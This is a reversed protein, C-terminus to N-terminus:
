KPSSHKFCKLLPLDFQSTGTANMKYICVKKDSTDGIENFSEFFRWVSEEPLMQFKQDEDKYNVVSRCLMQLNPCNLKYEIPYDNHMYSSIHLSKITPSTFYFQGIENTLCLKVHQLKTMKSFDLCINRILTESNMEYIEKYVSETSEDNESDDDDTFKNYENDYDAGDHNDYTDLMLDLHQLNSCKEIIPSLSKVEYLYAKFYILNPLDLELENEKIADVVMATKDAMLYLHTLNTKNAYNKLESVTLKVCLDNTYEHTTNSKKFTANTFQVFDM